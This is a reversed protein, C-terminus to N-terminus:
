VAAISLDYTGVDGSAFTTAVVIYTGAALGNQIIRANLGAGGDDNGAVWNVTPNAPDFSGAYLHLYADSLTGASSEMDIQVDTAAGITFSYAEFHVNTSTTAGSASPRNFTPDAATLEGSGAFPFSVPTLSYITYGAQTSPSNLLGSESQVRNNLLTVVVNANLGPAAGDFVISFADDSTGGCNHSVLSRTAAGDVSITFDGAGVTSCVVPESFTLNATNPTGGQSAGTLVIPTVDRVAVSGTTQYTDTWDVVRNAATGPQTYTLQGFSEPQLDESFQLVCVNTFGGPQTVSDATGDVNATSQDNFAFAGASGSPCAVDESYFVTIRNNVPDVTADTMFPAGPQTDPETPTAQISFNFVRAPNPVNGVVNEVTAPAVRLVYNTGVTTSLASDLTVRVTGTATGSGPAPSTATGTALLTSNTSDFVRYGAPSGIQNVQTNWVVDITTGGTTEVATVNPAVGPVNIQTTQSPLNVGGVGSDQYVFYLTAGADFGPNTTVTNGTTADYIGTAIQVGSANYVWFREGTQINSASAQITVTNNNPNTSLQAPPVLDPLGANTGSFVRTHEGTANGAGAGTQVVLGSRALNWAGAENSIGTASEVATLTNTEITAAGAGPEGAALIEPAGTLTIVLNQNSTGGVTFTANQGRTLRAQTGDADRLTVSANAAVQIPPNAFTFTIVDNTDLINNAPTTPTAPVDAFSSSVSYPAAAVALRAVTVRAVNSNPSTGTVSNSELTGSANVALVRYAYERQAVDPPAVNRDNFTTSGAGSVTGVRTATAWNPAQGEAVTTRYIRYGIVDPNPPRTWTVTVDNMQGDADVASVEATVNTPAAPIDNTITFASIGDPNYNINLTDGPVSGLINSSRGSLYREFAEMGINITPGTGSSYQFIDGSDYSFTRDATTFRDSAQLALIVEQNNYTGFAAAGPVWTKAGGIGFLHDAVPRGQADLNLANQNDADVFVVPIVSHNATQSNITFTVVGSPSAVNNVYDDGDTTSRSVGNVTEIRGQTQGLGAARRAGTDVFSVVGDSDVSVNGAPILGIDVVADGVNVTYTRSGRTGTDTGPTGSVTNVAAETPNVTYTQNTAPPPTVPEEFEGKWLGQENLEAAALIIFQAMQQRTVNAGPRYTGDTFGRVVGAETLKNINDSHTANDDVDPYNGGDGEDLDAGVEEMARAIFSAMQARTVNGGPRYTNDSYGTVVGRETLWDIAARAEPTASGRDTYTSPATPPISTDGDEAQSIFRAIFLAMQQRTVSNGPRYTGDPFGAAIGYAQMCDVYERFTASISAADQFDPQDPMDACIDSHGDASAVGAPMLALVMAGALGAGLARRMRHKISV